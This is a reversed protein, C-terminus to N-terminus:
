SRHVQATEAGTPSTARKGHDARGYARLLRILLGQSMGSELVTKTLPGALRTQHNELVQV